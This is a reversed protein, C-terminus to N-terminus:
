GNTRPRQRANSTQQLSSAKRLDVQEPHHSRLDCSHHVVSAATLTLSVQLPPSALSGLCVLKFVQISQSAPVSISISRDAKREPGGDGRRPPPAELNFQGSQLGVAYPETRCRARRRDSAGGATGVSPCVDFSDSISSDGAIAEYRRSSM